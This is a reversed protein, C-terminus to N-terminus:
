YLNNENQYSLMEDGKRASEGALLDVSVPTLLHARNERSPPYVIRATSSTISTSIDSLYPSNGITPYDVPTIWTARDSVHHQNRGVLRFYLAWQM